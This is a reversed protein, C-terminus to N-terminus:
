AVAMEQRPLYSARTWITRHDPTRVACEWGSGRPPTAVRDWGIVFGDSNLIYRRADPTTQYEILQGATEDLYTVRGNRTNHETHIDM